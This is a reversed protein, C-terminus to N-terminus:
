HYRRLKATLPQRAVIVQPRRKGGIRQDPRGEMWDVAHTKETPGEFWAMVVADGRDPSRGLRQAVGKSGKWISEGQPVGKPEVEIGNPVPMFTPASLDAVLTPDDPLAIPSGGPQGPDLAERFRWYAAARKSSFRLTKDSSRRPTKEGGKFGRIFETDLQSILHEYTPGGYGGGLDVVVIANDRRYSLIQGASWSGARDQPIEKAPIEIIPAFWGDHRWAITMPDHGGGSCDVGMACMPVGLPPRPRWREQALKIWETPIVQNPQDRFSTKFKGLLISRHPEIMADLRSQYDGGAYYPNDSTSSPIFTRSTPKVIRGKVMVGEPGDVWRDNGDEDSIVWRLEGPVAPKPYRDDLWPAFMKIVWLGEATLPPNTPLVVRTRQKHDEHRLWGMLFRVQQYAFQTAEDFVILDHAKGMWHQEDGVRTCAGFDIFKDQDLTLRPPPQGNFGSRSGNIKIADDILGSLDTYQRRLILSRKHLNFALGLGLQSKGGGPEGGYLMVDAQSEYAELQPGVSPIWKKGERANQAQRAIEELGEPPLQSIQAVLEELNPIDNM